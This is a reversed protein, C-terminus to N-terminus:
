ASPGRGSHDAPGVVAPAQEASVARSSMGSAHQGGRPVAVPKVVKLYLDNGMFFRVVGFRGCRRVLRILRSDRFAQSYRHSDARTLDPDIWVQPRPLGASLALRRYSLLNFECVHLHRMVELQADLKEVGAKDIWRLFWKGWPYIWRVFVTNPTTKM